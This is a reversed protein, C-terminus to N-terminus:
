EDQDLMLQAEAKRKKLNEMHKKLNGILPFTEVDTRHTLTATLARVGVGRGQCAPPLSRGVYPFPAVQKNSSVVVVVLADFIYDINSDVINLELLEVHGPM